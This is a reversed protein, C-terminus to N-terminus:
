GQVRGIDRVADEIRAADADWFKAFEPADLYDVDQGLNAMATKFKEDHAAKSVNTRLYTVVNAPTGKPAFLGVWLYYEINYGLEKMTPVDPLAKSRTAGFLALPKAKGGKIQALSASISSVLVQANNGLFATLAPGGGNTPLHRLKLGGAAKMYLATPIHLAGYLGSSSFIIQDPRKKADETLDKLTKYPQQDNVLLVCPDAVFRAIPIFDARTFKVPRGFLKDVEAFGSISTIHSLLTYGDPKANAAVQAGVAGAAGAKTEIVVPQKIIPELVAALPRTVVDSAGGPPFPNIITIAHSPYADEAFAPRITLAAAAAATGAVFHRRDVHIRGQRFM